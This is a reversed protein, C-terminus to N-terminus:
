YQKKYVGIRVGRVDVYAGYESSSGSNPGSTCFIIVPKRGYFHDSAKVAVEVTEVM